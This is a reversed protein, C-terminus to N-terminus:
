GIIHPNKWLGIYPDRYVLWSEISLLLKKKYSVNWVTPITPIGGRFQTQLFEPKPIMDVLLFQNSANLKRKTKEQHIKKKKLDLDSPVRSYTWDM